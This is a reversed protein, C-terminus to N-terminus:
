EIVVKANPEIIIKDDESLSTLRNKSLNFVIQGCFVGDITGNIKGIFKVYLENNYWFCEGDKVDALTNIKNRKEIKM